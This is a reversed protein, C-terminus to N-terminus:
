TSEIEIQPKKRLDAYKVANSIINYFVSHVYPTIGFIAVGPDINNVVKIGQESIETDLRKLARTVAPYVLLSELKHHTEKQVQLIDAIDRIVEDLGLASNQIRKLIEINLPDTVDQANFIATLGLLRAVPARLNHATMFAFQELQLNQRTLENNTHSLETTREKVKKELEVTSAALMNNQKEINDRQIAIEDSLHKVREMQSLIEQNKTTIEKTRQRVQHELVARQRNAIGIRIFYFTLFGGVVILVSLARFWLTRWFPPTIVLTISTGAENWIGDSNSGKVRFTYEGPDINTYTATRKNGVYNWDNDFGELM